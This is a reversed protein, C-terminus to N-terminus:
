KPAFGAKQRSDDSQWQPTYGQSPKQLSTPRRRRDDSQGQPASKQVKRRRFGPVAFGGKEGLDQQLGTQRREGYPKTPPLPSGKGGPPLQVLRRRQRPHSPQPRIAAKEASKPDMVTPDGGGHAKLWLQKFRGAPDDLELTEFHGIACKSRSSYYCVVQAGVPFVCSKVEEKYQVVIQQKTDESAYKIEPFTRVSTVGTLRHTTINEAHFEQKYRVMGSYETSPTTLTESVNNWQSVNDRPSTEFVNEPLSYANFVANSFKM